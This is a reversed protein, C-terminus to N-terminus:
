RTRGLTGHGAPGRRAGRGALRREPADPVPEAPVRGGGRARRRLAAAPGPHVLAQGLRRARRLEPAAVASPQRLSGPVASGPDRARASGGARIGRLDSRAHRPHLAGRAIRARQDLLGVCRGRVDPHPRRDDAQLGPVPFPRVGGMSGLRAARLGHPRRTSVRRHVQRVLGDHVGPRPAVHRDHLRRPLVPLGRVAADGPVCGDHAFLQGDPHEVPQSLLAPERRVRQLVDHGQEALLDRVHPMAWLTDWRQDDTVILLISPRTASRDRNTAATAASSGIIAPLAIASSIVIVVAARTGVARRSSRAGRARGAM